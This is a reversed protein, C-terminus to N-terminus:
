PGVTGDLVPSMRVAGKVPRRPVRLPSWNPRVPTKVLFLSSGIRTRRSVSSHRCGCSHTHIEMYSWSGNPPETGSPALVREKWQSEQAMCGVDFNGGWFNTAYAPNPELDKPVRTISPAEAVQRYLTQANAVPAVIYSRQPSSEASIVLSLLAVTVIVAGLGMVVSKKSSASIHRIPNEVLTYTVVSLALALLLWVVNQRFPLSTKGAQDAAIILIPWHWLYLSYSIRGVWRFPRLGLVSEAAWRPAATGRRHGPLGRPGSHGRLFRPLRHRRRLRGSLLRDGGSRAVDPVGSLVETTRLLWPTAVAVLAGLALEWARTFPSFYAVTPDSNTQLVSLTFSAAIVM